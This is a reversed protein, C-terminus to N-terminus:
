QKILKPLEEGPVLRYRYPHKVAELAANMDDVETQSFTTFPTGNTNPTVGAPYSIDTRHYSAIISGGDQGTIGGIYNENDNFVKISEPAAICATITSHSYGTIGGAFQSGAEIKGGIVTCATIAGNNYGVIGGAYNLATKVQPEHLTLNKITSNNTSSFLGACDNNTDVNLGYITYGAGDFTGSYEKNNSAIPEWPQNNLYIDGTLTYDETIANDTSARCREAWALFAETPYFSNLNGGDTETWGNITTTGTKLYGSTDLTTNITLTKGILEDPNNVSAPLTYKFPIKRGTSTTLTFLTEKNDPLATHSIICTYSGTAITMPAITPNAIYTTHVKIGNSIYNDFNETDWGNGAAINITLKICEHKMTAATLTHTTLNLTAQGSISDAQHLKEMTTQDLMRSAGFLLRYTEKDPDRDEYYLVKANPAFAWKDEGKNYTYATKEILIDNEKDVITLTLIDGDQFFEAATQGRTVTPTINIGTPLLPTRTSDPNSLNDENNCAALLMACTALALIIRKKM